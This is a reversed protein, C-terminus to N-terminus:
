DQIKYKVYLIHRLEKRVIKEGKTTSQWDPFRVMRVIEDMDKVMREVIIPAQPGKSESFFETLAAKAEAQVDFTEVEQEARVTDRALELLSKLYAISNLLGQEHQEKIRELREGLAEFTPNGKHKRFRAVLKIKIEKVKEKANITKLIGELIDADLILTELDDDVTDLTVNTHVLEITKAGLAHWLLKGKGSPPKVSEYVQSLWKYELTHQILSPHPSIAEWAKTLISFNSAFSDRTKNDPLCEQATILGEYGVLSRDVNPFYELAKEVLGPIVSVINNINSIAKQVSKDDYNLAKAVSDFIGLYEM